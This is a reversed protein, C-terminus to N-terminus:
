CFSEFLDGIISLVGFGDHQPYFILYSGGAHKFLDSEPFVTVEDDNFKYWSNDEDDITSQKPGTAEDANPRLASKKVLCVHHGAFM